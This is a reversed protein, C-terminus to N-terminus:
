IKNIKKLTIPLLDIIDSAILSEEGFKESALDGALGHIFAGFVAAQLPNYKQALLSLIIGTLVDGSGATAMGPNGTSNFYLRGDPTAVTTYAGKLIVILKYKEAFTKLRELKETDNKFDKVLRKFEGIHPTIISNEPLEKLLYKNEALLNLGDADIIMANKKNAKQIIDTLVALSIREKGIGPGIGIANFQSLDPTSFTLITDNFTVCMAEPVTTQIIEYNTQPIYTTLLGVGTRMCAKSALIAAGTKGYSGAFLLAHGFNNKFSFKDRKKLKIDEIQTFFYKTSTKNIYDRHIGIDLVEFSGINKSNDPLLFALKPFQFTLVKNAKIINDKINESNNEGFLGSPIDISIIHNGSENIKQVVTAAFDKVPRTLGSGFIADIILDSKAFEPFKYLDKIERITAKNQVNLRKLNASFDDSYNNSIKLIYVNVTKNEEALMRALALGDGGNNGPGVFIHFVFNSYNSIIYEFCKKAAREMLNISSIPENEITYADAKKVQETLFIKM